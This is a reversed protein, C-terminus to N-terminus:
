KARSFSQEITRQLSATEGDGPDIARAKGVAERALDGRHYMVMVAAISSWARASKPDLEV